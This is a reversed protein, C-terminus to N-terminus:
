TVSPLASLEKELWATLKQLEDLTGDQKMKNARFSIVRVNEKTYGKSPILRDLSPSNNHFPKSGHVLPIGLAPCHSPITIDEKKLDFLVGSKKCRHRCANLLYIVPNKKYYEAQKKAMLPLNKKRYNRVCQRHKEIDKYPM